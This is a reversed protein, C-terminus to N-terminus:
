VNLSRNCYPGAQNLHETFRSSTSWFVGPMEQGSPPRKGYAANSTVYLPHQSPPNYHWLSPETFRPPLPPPT